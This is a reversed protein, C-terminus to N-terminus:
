KKRRKGYGLRNMIVMREDHMYKIWCTIEESTRKCAICIGTDPDLTCIGVCPTVYLSKTM